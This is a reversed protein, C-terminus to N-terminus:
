TVECHTLEQMIEDVSISKMCNRFECTYNHALWQFKPEKGQLCSFDCNCSEPHRININSDHGFIKPDSPGFLVVGKKGVAHGAHGLFTDVSIFTKCVRLLAMTKRVDNGRRDICGKILKEGYGGVQLVKYGLGNLKQILLEWRDEFWDKVETRKKAEGVANSDGYSIAPIGAWPSIVISKHMMSGFKLSSELEDVTFSYDLNDNDYPIGYALCWAESVKGHFNNDFGWKYINIDVVNSYQECDGWYILEDINKNGALLQPYIVSVSRKQDNSLGRLLPTICLLDGMGGFFKLVKEEYKGTKFGFKKVYYDQCQAWLNGDSYTRIGGKPNRLHWVTANPDVVLGYGKKWIRYSFDTEERHGVVNYNLDYGGVEKGAEVSYLYSSYLHEVDQLNKDPHRRWQHDGFAMGHDDVKGQYKKYSEWHPPLFEIENPVSPEIIICGVGGVKKGVHEESKWTNVLTELCKPDLICDDDVRFIYPNRAENLSIQHCAHPGKKNGFFVRWKHGRKDMMRLMQWIFSIERLDYRKESDDIITVDWNKYSQELLSWLLLGLQEYRDKTPIDFEVRM